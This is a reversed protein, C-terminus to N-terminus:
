EPEGPGTSFSAHERLFAFLAACDGKIKTFTVCTANDVPILNVDVELVDSSARWSKRERDKGWSTMGFRSFLSRLEELIENKSKSSFLGFASSFAQKREKKKLSLKRFPVGM